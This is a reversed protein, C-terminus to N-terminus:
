KVGMRALEREAQEVARQRQTPTRYFPQQQPPATNGDESLRDFFRQLAERSTCLTGGVRLTELKVGRVGHLAWRWVTSFAPKRGRRRRPLLQCVDKLSLLEESKLDIM